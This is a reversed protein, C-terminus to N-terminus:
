GAMWAGGSRPPPRNPKPKKKLKTLNEYEICMAGFSDAGHSSWDHNPGLGVDRKADKKEHYCGIATLGAKCKKKDIYINPFVRRVAEIRLSAAGAGPNPMIETKFGAKILASQYTVRSVKEHNVGDHPLHMMAKEYDNDILWKVHEGLEQGIAERYNIVRLEKGIFQAIWITCADARAGTGGIDWFAHTSMLPDRAVHGIRSETKADNIKKAFYAGKVMTIYGGGWHHDYGDPDDRLWDIREQELIEPFWPNDQWNAEVVISDTPVNEGRFLADVPDTERRPNWTFWIEAGCDEIGSDRITPRLLELSYASLTQAEEVWARGFGELSKISVATSDQMGQFTIIGDGPTQIVENFIKFGSRHLNYKKIKDELLRKSSEKLTKQVERICVSRLGKWDLHDLILNEGFFHSKGSGRGGHAAKYRSQRLLPHFVRATEVIM